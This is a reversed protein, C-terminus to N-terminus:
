TFLSKKGCVLEKVLVNVSGFSQQNEIKHSGTCNM